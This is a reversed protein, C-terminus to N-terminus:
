DAVLSQFHGSQQMAISNVFVQCCSLHIAGHRFGVHLSWDFFLDDRIM